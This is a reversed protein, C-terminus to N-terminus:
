EYLVCECRSLAHWVRHVGLSVNECGNRGVMIWRPWAVSVSSM